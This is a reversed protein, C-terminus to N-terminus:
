LMRMLRQNGWTDDDNDRQKAGAERLMEKKHKMLREKENRRRPGGQCSM